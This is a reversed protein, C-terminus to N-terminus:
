TIRLKHHVLSRPQPFVPIYPRYVLLTDGTMWGVYFQEKEVRDQIWYFRMDMAKSSKQQVTKNIIGGATSNDIILCTAEPPHGMETLMTRTVTGTKNNAFVAGFEAEAVSSVVHVLVTSHCLIPGNALPPALPQEKQEWSLIIGWNV